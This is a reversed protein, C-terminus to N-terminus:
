VTLLIIPSGNILTTSKYLVGLGLALADANTAYSQMTTDTSVVLIIPSGNILTTSQYMGTVGGSLALADSAYSGLTTNGTTTLIIPSGNILTTSKYLKGSGLAALADANSAYSTAPINNNNQPAARGGSQNLFEWIEIPLM